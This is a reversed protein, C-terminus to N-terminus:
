SMSWQRLLNHYIQSLRVVDEHGNGHTITLSQISQDLDFLLERNHSDRVLSQIWFFSCLRQGRTVPTVQHLSHSPYLILSGAPLKVSQMGYRTEIQLEGGDYDDPDCLFLTASVDTRLVQGSALTMVASDVHQGYHGGNQYLNFKPPYIHEPLTASVFTPHQRLRHLVFDQLRRANDSNDDLQFNNKVTRALGGATAAGDQWESAFLLQRCQQVEEASLLSEIPLLM